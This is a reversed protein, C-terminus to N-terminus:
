PMPMKWLAFPQDCLPVVADYRPGGLGTNMEFWNAAQGAVSGIGILLAAAALPKIVFRGFM